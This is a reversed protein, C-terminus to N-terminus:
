VRIGVKRCRLVSNCVLDVVKNPNHTDQHGRYLAIKVGHEDLLSRLRILYPRYLDVQRDVSKDLDQQLLDIVASSDCYLIADDISIKSQAYELASIAGLVEGFVSTHSKHNTVRQGIFKNDEMVLCCSIAIGASVSTSADTFIEVM